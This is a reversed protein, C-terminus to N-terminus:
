ASSLAALASRVRSRLQDEDLDDAERLAADPCFADVAFFLDNLLRFTDEPRVDADDGFLDIYRREFETATIENALFARMASLYDGLSTGPATMTSSAAPRSGHGTATM